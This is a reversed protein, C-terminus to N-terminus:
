LIITQSPDKRSERILKDDLRLELKSIRDALVSAPHQCSSRIVDKIQLLLPTLRKWNQKNAKNLQELKGTSEKLNNTLTMDIVDLREESTVMREPVLDLAASVTPAEMGPIVLSDGLQDQTARLNIDLTELNQGVLRQMKELGRIDRTLGFTNSNIDAVTSVFKAFFSRFSEPLSRWEDQEENPIKFKQDDEAEYYTDEDEPEPKIEAKVKSPTKLPFKHALVNLKRNTESIISKDTTDQSNNIM